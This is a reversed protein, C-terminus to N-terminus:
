GKKASKKRPKLGNGTRKTEAPPKTELGAKVADEFPLRIRLKGNRRTNGRSPPEDDAM